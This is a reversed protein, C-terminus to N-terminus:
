FALPVDTIIHPKPKNARYFIESGSKMIKEEQNLTWANHRMHELHICDLFLGLDYYSLNRTIESGKLMTLLLAFLSSCSGGQAIVAIKEVGDINKMATLVGVLVAFVSAWTRPTLTFPLQMHYTKDESGKVQLDQLHEPGLILLADCNNALKTIFDGVQSDIVTKRTTVCDGIVIQEADYRDFYSFLGIAAERTMGKFPVEDLSEYITKFGTLLGITFNLGDKGYLMGKHQDVLSRFSWDFAYGVGSKKLRNIFTPLKKARDESLKNTQWVAQSWVWFGNNLKVFMVSDRDALEVLSEELVQFRQTFKNKIGKVSLGSNIKINNTIDKEFDSVNDSINTGLMINIAENLNRGESGINLSKIFDIDGSFILATMLTYVVDLDDAEFLRFCDEYRIENDLMYGLDSLMGKLATNERYISLGINLLNLSSSLESESFSKM